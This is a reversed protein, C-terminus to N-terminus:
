KYVEIIEGKIDAKGGTPVALTAGCIQCKVVTSAKSYIIQEHGCDPCKVKVFVKDEKVKVM